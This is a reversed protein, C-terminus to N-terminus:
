CLKERNSRMAKETVSRTPVISNKRTMATQVIAHSPQFGRVGAPTRNSGAGAKTSQSNTLLRIWIWRIGSMM